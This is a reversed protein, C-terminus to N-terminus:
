LIRHPRFFADNFFETALFSAWETMAQGAQELPHTREQNQNGLGVGSWLLTLALAVAAAATAYRSTFM